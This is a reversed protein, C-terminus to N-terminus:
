GPAAAAASFRRAQLAFAARLEPPEVQEIDADFRGLSAALAPWSWSGSTLRCRGDALEEVVGDAAFRAVRRAPLGLVVSGVCPWADELASGRFRAAVFRVPDGGPVRRPAFRAGHPVRPRMRDARFIRWDEAAPDWALVYWRGRRTLLAHPEIRRPPRADGGEDDDFRLTQRARVADSIAALTEPSAAPVPDSTDAVVAFAVGDMRRRLRDPMVQRVTALARAAAEDIAAGADAARRLAIGLAVAQADDFLLPPLDSGAALRYGGYPGKAAAVRYGLDRLRDIDRRLTRPTVDLRGALEPGPWERRAQLLSLLLLLRKTPDSARRPM